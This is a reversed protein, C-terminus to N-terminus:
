DRYYLEGDEVLKQLYPITFETTEIFMKGSHVNVPQINLVTVEEGDLKLFVATDYRIKELTGPVTYLEEVKRAPKGNIEEEEASLSVFIRKISKTPVYPSMYPPHVPETRVLSSNFPIVSLTTGDELTNKEIVWVIKEGDVQLVQGDGGMLVLADGSSIDEPQIEVLKMAGVFQQFSLNPTLPNVAKNM